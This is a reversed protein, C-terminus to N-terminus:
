QEKKKEEINFKKKLMEAFNKNSKKQEAVWDDFNSFVEDFMQQYINEDTSLESVEKVITAITEIRDSDYTKIDKRNHWEKMFRDFLLFEETTMTKGASTELTKINKEIWPRMESAKTLDNHVFKAVDRVLKELETRDNVEDLHKFKSVNNQYLSSETFGAEDLRILRKRAVSRLESYAKRLDKDSWQNPDELIKADTYDSFDRRFAAPQKRRGPVKNQKSM